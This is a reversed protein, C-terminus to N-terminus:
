NSGKDLLFVSSPNVFHVDLEPNAGRAKYRLGINRSRVLLQQLGQVAEELAQGTRFIGVKATMINQM